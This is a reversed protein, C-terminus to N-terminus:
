AGGQRQATQAAEAAAASAAGMQLALQPMVLGPDFGLMEAVLPATRTSLAGFAMFLERRFQLSAAQKVVGGAVLEAEASGAPLPLAELTAGLRLLTSLIGAQDRARYAAEAHSPPLPPPTPSPRAPRPPPPPCCRPPAPAM